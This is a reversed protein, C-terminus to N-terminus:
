LGRAVREVQASLEPYGARGDPFVVGQGPTDAARADLLDPVTLDPM